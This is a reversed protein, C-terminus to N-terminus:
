EVIFLADHVTVGDPAFTSNVSKLSISLIINRHEDM